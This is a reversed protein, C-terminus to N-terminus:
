YWYFTCVLWPRYFNIYIISLKYKIPIEGTSLASVHALVGPVIPYMWFAISFPYSARGLGTLSSIQIYSNSGSLYAAQNVVGGTFSAGSYTATLFNPGFDTFSGDFSFYAALTADNLIECATKVRTSVTLHDMLGTLYPVGLSGYIDAGGITIPGSTGIYPGVGTLSQIDLIGNIYIFRQRIDNDYVFAAHYWTNNQLITSSPTDNDFFGMYLKGFTSVLFLCERETNPVSLQGFFAYNYSASDTLSFWFEITFSRSNLSMAPASLRQLLSADFSIASNVYGTTYIPSAIGSASYVGTADNTTSDFSYFALRSSISTSTNVCGVSCM